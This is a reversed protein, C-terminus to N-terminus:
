SNQSEGSPTVTQDVLDIVFEALVDGDNFGEWFKLVVRSEGTPAGDFYLMATQADKAQPDYLGKDRTANHDMRLEEGSETYLRPYGASYSYVDSDGPRDGWYPQEITLVTRSPTASVALVKAGNDEAESTFSIEHTLDAQVTTRIQFEDPLTTPESGGEPKSKWGQIGKVTLAVDYSEQRELEEPLVMRLTAAQVGDVETFGNMQLHEIAVGNVTAACWAGNAVTVGDYEKWSEPMEVTFGMQIDHGDSYARQVTLTGASNPTTATEEVNQVQPITDLHQGGGAKANENVTQFLRGIVPIQGALAPNTFGFTLLAAVAVAFSGFTTGVRKVSRRRHLGEVRHLSEDVVADLRAPIAVNMERYELM